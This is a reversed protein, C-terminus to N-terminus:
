PMWSRKYSIHYYVTQPSREIDYGYILVNWTGPSLYGSYETKEWVSDVYSSAAMTTWSPSYISLNVNNHYENSVGLWEEPWWISVKIDKSFIPINVPIFSFSGPTVTRSGMMWVVNTGDPPYYNMYMHGSGEFNPNSSPYPSDGFNILAAYIKGPSRSMSLSKYLDWVLTASGAAYPAAGSTGSFVDLCTYCSSSATETDTPCQNDPKFRGDFTPGRSQIYYQSSPNEVNYAGVAYAKHACAPAKVYDNDPGDNGVAAIVACGSDFSDDAAAAVSGDEAQAVVYSNNIVIDGWAVAQNFARLTATLQEQATAGPDMIKFSDVFAKTVGRFNNGLNNNGVMIGAVATGHDEEDDPNYNPHGTDRCYQNGYICDEWVLVRNPSEFLTHDKRVGTDIFGTYIYEGNYGNNYFYDSKIRYIGDAVDNNPNSDVPTVETNSLEIKKVDGMKKLIELHKVQILVRLSNGITFTEIIEGGLGNISSVSESRETERVLKIEELMSHRYMLIEINVESDRPEMEYLEPLHPIRYNSRFCIIIDVDDDPDLVIALDQLSQDIINARVDNKVANNDSIDIYKELPIRAQSQTEDPTLVVRGFDVVGTSDFVIYEDYDTQSAKEISENVLRQAFPVVSEGSEDEASIAKTFSSKEYPAVDHYSNEESLSLSSTLTSPTEQDGGLSEQGCATVLIAFFPCLVLYQIWTRRLTWM